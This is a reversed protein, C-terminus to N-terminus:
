SSYFYVFTFFKSFFSFFFSFFFFSLSFANYSAIQILLFCIIVHSSFFIGQLHFIFDECNRKFERLNQWNKLGFHFKRLKGQNRQVGLQTTVWSQFGCLSIVSLCYLIFKCSVFIFLSSQMNYLLHIQEIWNKLHTGMLHSKCYTCKTFTFYPCYLDQYIM